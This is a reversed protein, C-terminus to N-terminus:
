IDNIGTNLALSSEGLLPPAKSTPGDLCFSSYSVDRDDPLYRDTYTLQRGSLLIKAMDLNLANTPLKRTACITYNRKSLAIFNLFFSSISTVLMKKKEWLTKLDSKLEGSCLM